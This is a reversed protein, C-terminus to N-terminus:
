TDWKKYYTVAKMGLARLIAPGINRKGRLVDSLYAPSIHHKTAWQDLGRYRQEELWEPGVVTVDARGISAALHKPYAILKNGLVFIGGNRLAQIIKITERMRPRM